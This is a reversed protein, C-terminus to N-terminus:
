WIGRSVAQRVARSLDLVWTRDELEICGLSESVPLHRRIEPTM